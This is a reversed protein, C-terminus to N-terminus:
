RGTAPLTRSPRRSTITSASSLGHAGRDHRSRRERRQPADAGCLAWIDAPYGRGYLPDLFWRNRLGDYRRAAAIDPQRDSASQTRICASRSASVRTACMRACCRSRRRRALAARSSLGPAGRALKAPGARALGRLLRPIGHVLARQAHDLACAIASAGASPMPSSPSNRSRPAAAGAASNRCGSRCTGTISRPGPNSAASSCATSWARISISARLTRRAKPGNPLIRPWAISFRYASLGSSRGCPGSRRPWRHYHDCATAGSSGDRIHGPVSCFRDWISERAAM